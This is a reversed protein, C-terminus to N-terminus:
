QSMHQSALVACADIAVRMMVSKASKMIDRQSDFKDDSGELASGDVVCLSGTQINHLRGIVFLTSVEMEVVDVNAKSYLELNSPILKSTYFADSSLTMGSIYKAKANQASLELQRFVKPCSVAPYGQPVLLSTVGEERVASHLIVLDGSKIIDPQLSGCTGARIMVKAGLHIFEEFCIAAGASGVGHSCVNFKMGNHTCEFSRYERCYALQKSSECTKAIEEARAPDGVVLVVPHVQEKCLNIHPQYQLGEM